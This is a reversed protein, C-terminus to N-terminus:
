SVLAPSTAPKAIHTTENEIRAKKKEPETAEVDAITDSRGKSKMKQEALRKVACHGSSQKFVIFDASAVATRLVAACEQIHTTKAATAWNLKGYDRGIKLLMLAGLADKADSNLKRDEADDPFQIYKECGDAIKQNAVEIAERLLGAVNMERNFAQGRAPRPIQPLRSAPELADLRRNVKGIERKLEGVIEDKAGELHRELPTQTPM